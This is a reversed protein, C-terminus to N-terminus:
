TTMILTLMIMVVLTMIIIFILPCCVLLSVSPIIPNRLETPAMKHLLWATNHRGWVQAVQEPTMGVNDKDETSLGSSSLEQIAEENGTLAAIHMPTFSTSELAMSDCGADLLM